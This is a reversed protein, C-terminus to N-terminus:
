DLMECMYIVSEKSPDRLPNCCLSIILLKPFFFVYSM